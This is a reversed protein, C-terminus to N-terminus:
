RRNQRWSSSDAAPWARALTNACRCM